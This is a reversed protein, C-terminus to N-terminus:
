AVQGAVPQDHRHDGDAPLGAGDLFRRLDDGAPEHEVRPRFREQLFHGAEDGGRNFPRADFFPGIGTEDLLPNAHVHLPKEALTRAEPREHQRHHHLDSTVLVRERRTLSNRPTARNAPARMQSMESAFKAPRTPANTASNDNWISPYAAYRTGSPSTTM